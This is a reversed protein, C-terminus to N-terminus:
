QLAVNPQLRALLMEQQEGRRATGQQGHYPVINGLHKGRHKRSCAPCLLFAPPQLADRPKVASGKEDRTQFCM